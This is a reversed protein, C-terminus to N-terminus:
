YFLITRIKYARFVYLRLMLNQNRPGKREWIINTTSDPRGASIFIVTSETHYAGASIM